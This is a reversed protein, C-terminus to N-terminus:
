FVLTTDNAAVNRLVYLVYINENVCIYGITCYLETDGHTHKAWSKGDTSTQSKRVYPEVPKYQGRSICRM